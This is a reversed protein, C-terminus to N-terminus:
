KTGSAIFVSIEAIDNSTESRSCCKEGVCDVKIDKLKAASYWNKIDAREFGSWRDNHEKLLFEHKHKDLDTIILKGGPKLVRTIEKIANKPMETHHLYMNAFAYDFTNDGLNVYEANGLVLDINDSEKFKDKLVSIMEKSQDIAVVNLGKKLLIETMFGTGAGFDAATEDEKVNATEIATERVSDPFFEKRMKDWQYAVNNFYKKSSM